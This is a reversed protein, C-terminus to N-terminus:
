RPVSVTVPPYDRIDDDSDVTAGIALVSIIALVFVATLATAIIGMVLGTTAMARGGQAGASGDIERQAKRALVIAPIGTLAYCSTLGLIGLVLAVIASTNTAPAMTPPPYGPGPYGTPPYTAPPYAPAPQSPAAPAPPPYWRGDAAQWWDAAQPTM